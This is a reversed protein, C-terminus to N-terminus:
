SESFCYKLNELLLIYVSISQENRWIWFNVDWIVNIKFFNLSINEQISEPLFKLFLGVNRSSFNPKNKILYSLYKQTSEDVSNIILMFLM